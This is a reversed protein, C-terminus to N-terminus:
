ARVVEGEGAVRVHTVDGVERGDPEAAACVVNLGLDKGHCSAWAGGSVHHLSQIDIGACDLGSLTPGEVSQCAFDVVYHIHLM